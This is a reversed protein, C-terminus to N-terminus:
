NIFKKKLYPIGPSMWDPAPAGKLYHDFYQKMRRQFDKQNEEKRRHHPEGPYSLLIVEKGLRKAAVYFELGQNWDVAGDETGHLIMFPTTIKAAHHMPSQSVYLELDKMPYVDKHSGPIVLLCSQEEPVDTLAIWVTVQYLEGDKAPKLVPEKMDFNYWRSAQHFSAGKGGWIGGYGHNGKSHYSHHLSESILCWQLTFNENDYFSVVEDIAWSMSCHDIIINQHNPVQRM